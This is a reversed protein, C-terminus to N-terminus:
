DLIFKRGWLELVFFRFFVESGYVSRGALYRQFRSALRDTAAYRGIFRPQEFASAVAEGLASKKFWADQPTDFGLKSKRLRVREPLIGSMAQRLVYKTWGSRMKQTLPLSALMEALRYDLFPLRAEVSHAMANKDAYRLLVPLSFEFLDTWIRRGFDPHYGFGPRRESFGRQIDKSLMEEVPLIRSGLRFYRLGQRLRLTKLVETSSFFRRAESLLRSYQGARRLRM